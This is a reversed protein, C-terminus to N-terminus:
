IRGKMAKALAGAGMSGFSKHELAQAIERWSRRCQKGRSVLRSYGNIGGPDRVLIPARRLKLAEQLYRERGFPFGPEPAGPVKREVLLTRLADVKVHTVTANWAIDVPVAIDTPRPLNQVETKSYRGAQNLDTTYGAKNPKWWLASDAIATSNDLIYFFEDM